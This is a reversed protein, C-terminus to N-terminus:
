KKHLEKRLSIIEKILNIETMSTM